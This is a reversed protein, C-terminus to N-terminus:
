LDSLRQADRRRRPRGARRRAREPKTPKAIGRCRHFELQWENRPTSCSAREPIEITWDAPKNDTDLVARLGIAMATSIPAGAFEDERSWQVRITKGPMRMAIVSADFAADDATNHGYAGAGQRHFVTVQTSASGLARALWDRQVAPGQTHSWVKLVGDKFEALACAPGISGYTLFPRNYLAEVVRGNADPGPHGNDVTRDRSPQAKLWEPEGINDPAPEGGNARM